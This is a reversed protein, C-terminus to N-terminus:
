IEVIRANPRSCKPEGFHKYAQDLSDYTKADPIHNDTSKLSGWGDNSNLWYFKGYGADWEIAYRVTRQFSPIVDASITVRCCEHLEKLDKQSVIQGTKLLVVVGAKIQEDEQFAYEYGGDHKVYCYRGTVKKKM